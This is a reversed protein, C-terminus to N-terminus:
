PTPPEPETLGELFALEARAAKLYDDRTPTDSEEARTWDDYPTYLCVEQGTATRVPCGHCGIRDADEQDYYTLCLACTTWGGDQIDGFDDPHIAELKAVIERWKARSLALPNELPGDGVQVAKLTDHIWEFKLTSM